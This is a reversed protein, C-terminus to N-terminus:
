EPAMRHERMLSRLNALKLRAHMTLAVGSGTREVLGLRELAEVQEDAPMTGRDLADLLFLYDIDLERSKM